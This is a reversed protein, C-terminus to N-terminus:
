GDGGLPREEGREVARAPRPDRREGLQAVDCQRQAAHHDARVASFAVADCPLAGDAVRDGEAAIGPGLEAAEGTGAEEEGLTLVFDSAQYRGHLYKRCDCGARLCSVPPAGYSPPSSRSSFRAVWRWHKM